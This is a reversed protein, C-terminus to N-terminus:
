VSSFTEKHNQTDANLLTHKSLSGHMTEKQQQLSFAQSSTCTNQAPLILGMWFYSMEMAQFFLLHDIHLIINYM